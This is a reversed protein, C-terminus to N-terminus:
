PLTCPGDSCPATGSGGLPGVVVFYAVKGPAMQPIEALTFSGTNDIQACFAGIVTQAFGAPPGVTFATIQGIDLCAVGNEFDETVKGTLTWTGDTNLMAKATLPSANVNVSKNSQGSLTGALLCLGVLAVANKPKM